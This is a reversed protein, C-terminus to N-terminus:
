FMKEEFAFGYKCINEKPISDAVLESTYNKDEIQQLAAQVTDVLTKDKRPNFVKFEIIIANQSKDKPKLMVDYRGFGSERNSNRRGTDFSSFIEASVRNIYENMADLDNSLLATVFDNYDSAPQFWNKIMGSFVFEKSIRTIGTM